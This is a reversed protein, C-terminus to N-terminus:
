AAPSRSSRGLPIPFPWSADASCAPPSSRGRRGPSESPAAATSLSITAQATRARMRLLELIHNTAVFPDAVAKGDSLSVAVVPREGLEGILTAGIPVETSDLAALREISLRDGETALRIVVPSSVPEIPSSPKPNHASAATVNQQRTRTFLHNLATNM